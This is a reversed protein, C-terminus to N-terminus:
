ELTSTPTNCESKPLLPVIFSMTYNYNAVNTANSNFTTWASTGELGTWALDSFLEQLGIYEDYSAKVNRDFTRYEPSASFFDSLGQIMFNRYNDAMFNHQQDSYEDFKIAYANFDNVFDPQPIIGNSNDGGYLKGFIYAHFAEHLITEAIELNSGNLRDVDLTITLSNLIKGDKNASTSGTQSGPLDGIKFTLPITNSPGFFAILKSFLTSGDRELINKVCKAKSNIFSNDEKIVPSPTPAPTPTPAPAVGGGSGGGGGGGDGTCVSYYTTTTYYNCTTYLFQGDGGYWDTCQEWYTTVQYTSCTAVSKLFSNGTNGTQINVAGNVKGEHYRWGNIFKGEPTYFLVLGTFDKQKSKYLNGSVDYNHKELYSPDGILTMLFARKEGGKAKLIVLRTLSNHLRKDDPVSMDWTNTYVHGVNGNSYHIPVVVM